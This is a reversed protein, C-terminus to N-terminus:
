GLSFALNENLPKDRTGLAVNKVGLEVQRHTMLSTRDWSISIEGKM